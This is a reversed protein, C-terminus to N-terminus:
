LFCISGIIKKLQYQSLKLCVLKIKSLPEIIKALAGVKNELSILLSTKDDGSIEPEAKSIIIFRTSNQSSDNINKHIIPIEYYNSSNVSGIAAANKM